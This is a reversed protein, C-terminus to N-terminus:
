KILEFSYELTYYIQSGTESDKNKIFVDIDTTESVEKTSSDFTVKLVGNGKPKIGSRPFEITTCDCSSIFDIYVLTDSVNTFPIEFIVKEGKKVEGLIYSDNEFKLYQIDYNEDDVSTIQAHASQFIFAFAILFYFITKIM